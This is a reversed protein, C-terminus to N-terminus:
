EGLVQVLDDSTPGTETVEKSPVSRILEGSLGYEHIKNYLTKISVGLLRSAQTKNGSTLALAEMIADKERQKLTKFSTM